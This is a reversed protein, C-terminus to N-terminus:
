LIIAASGLVYSPNRKFSEIAMKTLRRSYQADNEGPLRPLLENGSSGSWRRAMTMTQSIPNDLVLGGAAMYNRILWPTLTLVFGIVILVSGKLWNRQNSIVLYALFIIAAILISSQLRILAAAGLVGGILLPLSAPRNSIRLWRICLLTALSILLATPLESLLLKSYTVDSAFPVAVNANLDRFTTLISLGLGLPYGGIEKGLFYLLVPFVALMLTQLVIVNQYNLNGLLHLWTLFAVYVPRSPIELWLFGNGTLASQAYQAYFQPDAFPYIEFNPARPPTANFAPNIPKSLWLLVTFLYIVLPIWKTSNATTMRPSFALGGIFVLTLCIQWELFPIPPVGWNPEPTIGIKTIAILGGLLPFLANLFLLKKWAPQFAALFPQANKYRNWAILIALELGSIGFWLILPRLRAANVLYTPNSKFLPVAALFLSASITALLAAIYILDCFALHQNVDLRNQRFTSKRSQFWLLISVATLTVSISILFLLALSFGFALPNDTDTPISVLWCLVAIGQIGRLGFLINWYDSKSTTM